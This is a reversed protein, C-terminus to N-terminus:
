SRPLTQAIVHECPCSVPVVIVTFAGSSLPDLYSLFLWRWAIKVIYVPPFQSSELLYIDLSKRDTKM